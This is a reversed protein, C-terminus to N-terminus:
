EKRAVNSKKKNRWYSVQQRAVPSKTNINRRGLDKKGWNYVQGGNGKQRKLGKRDM